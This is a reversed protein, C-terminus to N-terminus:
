SHAAVPKTAATAPEPAPLRWAVAAVIAMAVALVLGVPLAVLVNGDVILFSFVGLAGNGAGHLMAPALVSGTRERVRWLLFSFPTVWAVMVLVGWGWEAM